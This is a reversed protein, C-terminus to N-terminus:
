AYNEEAPLKGAELYDIILTLYEDRRQETALDVRQIYEGSTWTLLEPQDAEGVQAEVEEDGKKAENTEDNGKVEEAEGSREGRPDDEEFLDIVKQKSAVATIINEM